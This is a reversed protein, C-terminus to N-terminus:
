ASATDFSVGLPLLTSGLVLFFLLVFLRFCLLFSCSPLLASARPFGAVCVPPWKASCPLLQLQLNMGYHDYRKLMIPFYNDVRALRDSSQPWQTYTFAMCSPTWVRFDCWQVTLPRSLSLTRQLVIHLLAQLKSQYTISAQGPSIRQPPQQGLLRRGYDRRSNLSPVCGWCACASTTFRRRLSWVSYQVCCM